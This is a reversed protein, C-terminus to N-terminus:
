PAPQRLQFRQPQIKSTRDPLRGTVATRIGVSISHGVALIVLGDLLAAGASATRRVARARFHSSFLSRYSLRPRVPGLRFTRFVVRSRHVRGLSQGLIIDGLEGNATTSRM